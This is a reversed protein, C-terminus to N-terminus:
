PAGGGGSGRWGSREAARAFYHDALTSCFAIVGYIAAVTGAGADALALVAAGFIVVELLARAAEPARREARPAMFVSWVAAIAVPGGVGLLIKLAWSSHEHFGWYAVAGFSALEVLFRVGDSVPKMRPSDEARRQRQGSLVGSPRLGWGILHIAFSAEFVFVPITVIGATALLSPMLGTAYTLYGLLLGNVGVCFGPGM